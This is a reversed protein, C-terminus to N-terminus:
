IAHTFIQSAARDQGLKRANPAGRDGRGCRKETLRATPTPIRAFTNAVVHFVM